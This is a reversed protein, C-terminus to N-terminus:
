DGGGRGENEESSRRSPAKVAQRGRSRSSGLDEAEGSTRQQCTWAEMRSGGGTREESVGRISEVIEHSKVFGRDQLSM